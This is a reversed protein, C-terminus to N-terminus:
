YKKAEEEEGSKIERLRQRLAILVGAIVTLLIVGYFALFGVAVWADDPIWFLLCFLMALFFLLM